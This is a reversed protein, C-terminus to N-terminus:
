KKAKRMSCYTQFTYCQKGLESNIETQKVWDFIWQKPIRENIDFIITEMSFAFQQNFQAIGNPEELFWGIFKLKHKREFANVYAMCADNYYSKLAEIESKTIM